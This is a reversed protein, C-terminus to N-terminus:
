EYDDEDYYYTEAPETYEEEYDDDSTYLSDEYANRKNLRAEYAKAQAEEYAELEEPTMSDVDKIQKILPNIKIEEAFYWPEYVDFSFVGCTNDYYTPFNIRLESLALKPNRRREELTPKEFSLAIDFTLNYIYEPTLKNNLRYKAKVNAFAIDYLKSISVWEVPETVKCVGRDNVCYANGNALKLAMTGMDLRVLATESNIFIVSVNTTRTVGIEDAITYLESGASAQINKATADSAFTVLMKQSEALERPLSIVSNIGNLRKIELTDASSETLYASLKKTPFLM